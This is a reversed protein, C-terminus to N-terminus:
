VNERLIKDYELKRQTFVAVVIKQWPCVFNVEKGYKVATLKLINAIWIKSLPAYFQYYIMRCYIKGLSFMNVPYGMLFKVLYIKFYPEVVWIKSVIFKKRFQSCHLEYHIDRFKLLTFEFSKSCLINHFKTHYSKM